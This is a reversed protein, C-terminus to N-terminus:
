RYSIAQNKLSFVKLVLPHTMSVAGGASVAICLLTMKLNGASPHCGREMHCQGKGWEWYKERVRSRTHEPKRMCLLGLKGARSTDKKTTCLARCFLLIPYYYIRFYQHPTSYDVCWTQFVRIGKRDVNKNRAACASYILTNGKYVYVKTSYSQVFFYQVAIRRWDIWLRCFACRALSFFNM